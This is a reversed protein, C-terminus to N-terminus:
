ALSLRLPQLGAACRRKSFPRSFKLISRADASGSHECLKRSITRSKMTAVLTSNLFHSRDHQSSLSKVSFFSIVPLYCPELQAVVIPVCSEDYGAPVPLVYTSVHLGVLCHVCKRQDPAMEMTYNPMRERRGLGYLFDDIKM